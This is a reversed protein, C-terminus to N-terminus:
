KGFYTSDTKLNVHAQAVVLEGDTTYYRDYGDDKTRLPHDSQKPLIWCNINSLIDCDIGM